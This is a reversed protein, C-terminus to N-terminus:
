SKVEKRYAAISLMAEESWDRGLRYEISGVPQWLGLSDLRNAALQLAEVLRAADRELEAIRAKDAARAAEHDSLRIVKVERVTYIPVPKGYMTASGSALHELSAVLIEPIRM